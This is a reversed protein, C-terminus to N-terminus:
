ILTKNKFFINNILLQGPTTRIYSNKVSNTSLKIKNLIDYKFWINDSIRLRKQLFCSFFENYDAFYNGFGFTKFLYNKHGLYNLGLILEQTPKMKLNSNGFMFVEKTSKLIFNLEIQSIKTLPLYIAMQDGDFDANYASCVLPHLEIADSPSILINFAQIGLKHLTPARNLIVIEQKVLKKLIELYIKNYNNHKVFTSKDLNE